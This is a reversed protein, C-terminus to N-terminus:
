SFSFLSILGKLGLFVALGLLVFPHVASILGFTLLVGAGIDIWSFFNAIFFLGKLMLYIGLAMMMGRPIDVQYFGAVFLLGVVIDAIGFFKTM